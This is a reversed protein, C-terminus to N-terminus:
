CQVDILEHLFVSIKKKNFVFTADGGLILTSIVNVILILILCKNLMTDVNFILLMVLVTLHGCMGATYHM